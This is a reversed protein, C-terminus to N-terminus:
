PGRHIKRVADLIYHSCTGLRIKTISGIKIKIKRWLCYTQEGDLALTKHTKQQHQEKPSTPTGHNDSQTDM